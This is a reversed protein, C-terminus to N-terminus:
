LIWKISDLRQSIIAVHASNRGAPPGLAEPGEGASFHEKFPSVHLLCCHRSIVDSTIKSRYDMLILERHGAGLSDDDLASVPSLDYDMLFADGADFLQRSAVDDPSVHEPHVM